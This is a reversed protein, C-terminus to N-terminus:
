LSYDFSLGDFQAIYKTREDPNTEDTPEDNWMEIWVEEIIEKQIKETEPDDECDCYPIKGHLDIQEQLYNVATFSASKKADRKNEAIAEAIITDHVKFKCESNGDSMSSLEMFLKTCKLRAIIEQLQRLPHKIQLGSADEILVEFRYWWRKFITADVVSTVVEYKFGSDVFVAGLLSEYLDGLAKPSTPLRNWFLMSEATNGIEKSDEHVKQEDHFLKCWQSIANSLEVNMYNMYKPLELMCSIVGLFQNNILETRLDSLAGPQMKHDLKMLFDTVAFGLISDGLFELREYSAQGVIASSHTLAEVLIAPNKFAYGIKTEVARCSKLMSPDITTSSVGYSNWKLWYGTWNGYFSNGLFSKICTAASAVGSDTFCAGITAEFVDAVTKDSLMQNINGKLRPPVFHQRSFPFSLIFTELNYLNATSRLKNNNELEARAQSLYGEHRNPNLVFLHLTLHAKLFSDGLFELREYNYSLNASPCTFAKQLLDISTNLLLNTATGVAGHKLDHMMLRHNLYRLFLPYRLAEQIHTAKIPSIAGFQPLLHAECFKPPRKKSQYPYGIPVGTVLVQERNIEELCQFHNRYIHAVSQIKGNQQNQIVSDPTLGTKIDTLIYHRKYFYKDFVVIERIDELNSDKDVKIFETESEKSKFYEISKSDIITMPDCKVVESSINDPNLPICLPGWEETETFTTRLVSKFFTFHYKRFSSIQERNLTVPEELTYVKFNTDYSNMKMPFEVCEDPLPHFTLFGVTLFRNEKPEEVDMHIINLYFIENPDWTGKFFSAIGSEFSRIKRKSGIRRKETNHKVLGTDANIQTLISPQLNDDLEGVSHLLKVMRFCVDRKALKRNSCIAGRLKSCDKRISIPMRVECAFGNAGEAFLFDPQPTYYRDRPLIHCYHNLLQLSNYMTISAGTSSIKFVVEDAIDEFKDVNDAPSIESKLASRMGEENLKLYPKIDLGEEAVNTSILLNLLGNRFKNVIDKQVPVSMSSSRKYLKNAAGHGLLYSSRIFNLKPHNEIILQLVRAMVRQQCFVIGCFYEAEAKYEMLLEILKLVKGGIEDDRPPDALIGWKDDQALQICYNHYLELHELSLSEIISVDPKIEYFQLDNDVDMADDHIEGEEVHPIENDSDDNKVTEQNSVEETVKEVELEVNNLQAKKLTIQKQLAYTLDAIAFELARDAAWPGLTDSFAICDAIERQLLILLDRYKENMKLYLKPPDFFDGESFYVIRETPRTVYNSLQSFCNASLANANLNAELRKIAELTNDKSACPSATQALRVHAKDLTFLFIAPTLVLVDYEQIENAWYKKDWAASTTGGHYQKVKLPSNAEIYSAQQGVLPITPVLFISCKKAQTEPELSAMHRLLLLAILTKGSGTDLIALINSEKAKLFLETQYPRPNEHNSPDFKTNKATGSVAKHKSIETLFSSKRRIVGVTEADQTDALGDEM